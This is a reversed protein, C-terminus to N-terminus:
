GRRPKLGSLRSRPQEEIALQLEDGLEAASPRAAPDRQLCATLLEGVRAPLEIPLPAPDGAVQPFREAAVASERKGRSFAREACLAEYLTAGLGWIDAAPGIPVEGDALAQEPAMYADTGVPSNLRECESITRAVSLDIVRPPSGMILNSPKIDLHVLGEGSLYHIASSVEAALSLGQELQIPGYRRVLSSLRPGDLHELVLHPRPGDPEGGFCRVVVPHNLRDLLERERRMGALTSEDEVLDPRVVKAVVLARLRDDWALYAEYRIGGGLLKLASLGTVIEDGESFRWRSRETANREGEDAAKAEPNM